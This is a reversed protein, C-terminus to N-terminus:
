KGELVTNYADLAANVADGTAKDVYYMDSGLHRVIGTLAEALKEAIAKWAWIPTEPKRDAEDEHPHLLHQIGVAGCIPCPTQERAKDYIAMVAAETAAIDAYTYSRGTNMDIGGLQCIAMKLRDLAERIETM